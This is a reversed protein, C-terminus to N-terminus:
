GTLSALHWDGQPSLCRSAPLKRTRRTGTGAPTLIEGKPSPCAPFPTQRRKVVKRRNKGAFGPRARTKPM